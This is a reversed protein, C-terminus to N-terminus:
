ASARPLRVRVEFGDSQGPVPSALELRSGFDTVIANVIALGLGSGKAKTAGREFARTLRNLDHSSVVPGHNSVSLTGQDDLTVEIPVDAEGHRLANEILNRALIAFADTDVPSMFIGSSPLRLILREAVSPPTAQDAIVVQLVEALNDSKDSLLSGGEAKALQLLKESLRALDRLATEISRARARARAANDPLEAILRQTQALAAAIPTRLEHASNGTFSREAEIAQRLRAILQDVSTAIPALESPLNTANVPALNGRGRAEIENQWALLPKLSWAVLGWVGLISIPLLVVLPWVLMVTAKYVADQRQGASEKTTVFVTGQVASETYLRSSPSDHFGPRLDNPFADSVADNSQIVVRGHADRVIYTISEKQPDVSPLREATVDMASDRERNLLEIYALPLVRQAVAQLASDFVKDTESRVIANAALVAALWLASMVATLNLTLRLQLSHRPPLNPWKM